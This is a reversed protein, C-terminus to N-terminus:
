LAEGTAAKRYISVGFGSSDNRMGMRRGEVLEPHPFIESARLFDRM